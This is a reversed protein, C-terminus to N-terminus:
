ADILDVYRKGEPKVLKCRIPFGDQRGIRQLKKIVVEGSSLFVAPDDHGAVVCCVVAFPRKEGDRLSFGFIVIEADILSDQEFKEAMTKAFKLDLDRPSRGVWQDTFSSPRSAFKIEDRWSKPQPTAVPPTVPEPATVPEPVTPTQLKPM